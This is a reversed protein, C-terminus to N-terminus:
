VQMTNCTPVTVGTAGATVHKAAHGPSSLILYLMRAEAPTQALTEEEEEEERAKEDMAPMGPVASRFIGVPAVNQRPFLCGQRPYCVVWRACSTPKLMQLMRALAADQRDFCPQPVLGLWLFACPHVKGGLLESLPALLSLAFDM